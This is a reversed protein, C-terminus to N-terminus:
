SSKKPLRVIVKLGKGEDSEASLQGGHAQVISRAIALGLGSGGDQRQRSSDTRYFRDFIRNIDEAKLGPGSDQIALEVQDDLDKASLVIKGGEPTHRLANDLINTLVQTMRGPDVEIDSLPSAIELNLTINKRQTQYQYIAAVEQLLRDPEVMQPNISLEGADALSLIRLDNVLHELRGAEERIIEFNERSPPLVGDHVAEAHGLILSLPTRLEHAIDATMQKRTNVSRSLESSMRNFAQALEGLEDNSRVPVQQSLDGESVAHTARTLERIPRTLTRSLFIGVLLAIVAGILAGYLLIRNIREIFEVERPRGQFPMAVPVLVGIVKDNNTISIGKALDEASVQQGHRYGGNPVIVIGTETTLTFPYSRGKPGPGMGPEDGDPHLVREVGEWSGYQQYYDSLQTVTDNQTEDTLFRIFEARTNWTATVFIVAVSIIGISLFALILKSSISRM